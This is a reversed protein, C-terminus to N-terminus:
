LFIHLYIDQYGTVSNMNSTLSAGALVYTNGLNQGEVPIIEFKTKSWDIPYADSGYSNVSTLKIKRNVKQPGYIDLTARPTPPVVWVTTESSDTKGGSDEVEVGLTFTGERSFTVTEGTKQLNPTMCSPTSYHYDLASAGDEKDSATISVKVDEGMVVISPAKIYVSPKSNFPAPPAGEYIDTNATDTATVFTAVKTYIDVEGDWVETGVASTDITKTYTYNLSQTDNGAVVKQEGNLRFRWVPPIITTGALKAKLEINVTTTAGNVEVETIDPVVSLTPTPVGPQTVVINFEEHANADTSKDENLFSDFSSESDIEVKNQGVHLYSSPINISKGNRVVLDGDLTYNKPSGLIVENVTITTTEYINDILGKMDAGEALDTDSELINTHRLEYSFTVDDGESALIDEPPTITIGNNISGGLDPINLVWYLLSGSNTLHAMKVSGDARIGPMTQMIAYEKAQTTNSAKSGLINLVSDTDVNSSVEVVTALMYADMGPEMYQWSDEAGSSKQWNRSSLAGGYPNVDPTFKENAVILGDQNYGLYRWEKGDYNESEPQNESLVSRLDTYNGDCSYVI